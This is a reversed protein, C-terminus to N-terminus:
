VVESWGGLGAARQVKAAYRLGVPRGKPRGTNYASLVGPWGYKEFHRNRLRALFKCGYDLAVEPEFAQSLWGRMGLMRLNAGMVQMLSYSFKQATKETELTSYRPKVLDPKYLWKYHPEFRMANPDMGSEVKCVGRVISAPLKYTAAADIILAEINM